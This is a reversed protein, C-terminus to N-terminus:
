RLIEAGYVLMNDVKNSTESGIGFLNLKRFPETREARSPRLNNGFVNRYPSAREATGASALEQVDTCAM